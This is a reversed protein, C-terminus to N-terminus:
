INEEKYKILGNQLNIKIEQLHLIRQQYVQKLLIDDLDKSMVSNLNIDKNIHNLLDTINGSNRKIIEFTQEKM